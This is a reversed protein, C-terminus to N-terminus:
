MARDPDHDLFRCDFLELLSRPIVLQLFNWHIIMGNSYYRGDGAEEHSRHRWSTNNFVILGRRPDQCAQESRSSEDVTRRPAKM